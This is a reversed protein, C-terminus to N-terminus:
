RSSRAPAGTTVGGSAPARALSVISAAGTAARGTALEASTCGLTTAAVTMGLGLANLAIVLAAGTFTGAGFANGFLATSGAAEFGAAAFGVDVALDLFFYPRYSSCLLTAVGRNREVRCLVLLPHRQATEHCPLVSTLMVVIACASVPSRTTASDGSFALSAAVSQDRRGLRKGPRASVTAVSSSRWRQCAPCIACRPCANVGPTARPRSTPYTTSTSASPWAM